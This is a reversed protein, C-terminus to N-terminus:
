AQSRSRSQAQSHPRVQAQAQAQAAQAAARPPGYTTRMRAPLANLRAALDAATVPAPGSSDLIINAFTNGPKYSILRVVLAAARRMAQMTHPPLVLHLSPSTPLAPASPLASSVPSLAAAGDGASASANASADADSVSASGPAAAPAPAPASTALAVWNNILLRMARADSSYVHDVKLLYGPVFPMTAQLGAAAM